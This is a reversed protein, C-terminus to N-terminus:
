GLRLFLFSEHSPPFLDHAKRFSILRIRGCGDRSQSSLRFAQLRVFSPSENDRVPACDRATQYDVGLSPPLLRGWDAPSSRAKRAGCGFCCQPLM